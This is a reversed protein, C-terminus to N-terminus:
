SSRNSIAAQSALLALVEVRQSTFVGTLWRHEVYLIGTIDGRHIIPLCLVSLPQLRKVYPDQTFVDEQTADSLVLPEKTRAVFQIISEPIEDSAELPVPPNVRRTAAGEVSAVAELYLRKDHSLLMCAKQAGAHELALRLLKTM